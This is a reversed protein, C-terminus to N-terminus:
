NTGVSRNAPSISNASRTGVTSRWSGRPVNARHRCSWWTARNSSRKTTSRGLSARKSPRPNAPRPSRPPKWRDSRASEGPMEPPTQQFRRYEALRQEYDAITAAHTPRDALLSELINKLEPVLNGELRPRHHQVLGDKGLILLSPVAEVGFANAADGKPDRLLPLTVKATELERKLFGDDTGAEVLAVAFPALEQEDKFADTAQQIAALADRSPPSKSDWFAFVAVKGLLSDPTVKTGDAAVFEFKPSTKGLLATPRLPAPVPVIRKVMLAGTPVEFQFSEKAFAPDLRSEVFEAFQELGEVKGQKELEKRLADVPYDLRVLTWGATDIWLIIDGAETPIKIRRCMRGAHTQEPLTVAKVNAPLLYELANPSFGLLLQPPYMGFGGALAEQMTRDVVINEITSKGPAPLELVGDLGKVYGRVNAGDCILRVDYCELRLKNPREFAVTLPATLEVPKGNLAYRRVVFGKDAYSKADRYKAVVFELIARPSDDKPQTPTAAAATSAEGTNTTNAKSTPAVVAPTSTPSSPAVTPPKPQSEGCGIVFAIAVSAFVDQLRLSGFASPTM